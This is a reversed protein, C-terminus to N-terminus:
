MYCYPLVRNRYRNTTNKRRDIEIVYQYWRIATNKSIINRVTCFIDQYKLIFNDVNEWYNLSKKASQNM